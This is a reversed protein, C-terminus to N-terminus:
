SEGLARNVAPMVENAMLEMSRRALTGDVWDHGAYVLTGFEGLEARLALIQEAVQAPTGHIVLSRMVFDHTVDGDAMDRSTKFLDPRGNGILKRMLSRYYNGYAGDAALAYARATREDEAVFISRAVRWDAPCPAHGGASWGELLKDRHSRVWVPQLFNASVISWGRRAANAVSDSFPSMCAVMIPPHPRQYPGLIAGQGIELDLTRRTTVTWFEGELDYPPTGSWIALVEEIAEDFMARRDRDLNGFVEADSRLGGPSIGFVFRGALMQDLMAVQAAVAAPHSNPLNVTGSGLRIHATHYALSALFMLCSTVTEARDTVHEGVFAEHFGLRDALLVAERDEDLTERWDRGPPHLPMTFYSLKM